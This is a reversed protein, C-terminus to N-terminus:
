MEMRLVVQAQAFLISISLARSSNFTDGHTYKKAMMWCERIEYGKMYQGFYYEM